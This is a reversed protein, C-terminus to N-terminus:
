GGKDSGLDEWVIIVGEFMGEWVVVLGREEVATDEVEMGGQAVEM